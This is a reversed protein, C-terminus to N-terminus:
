RENGGIIVKSLTIMHAAVYRKGEAFDTNRRGDEGPMFSIDYYQCLDEIIYKVATKQQGENANGALLARMAGVIVEDYVPSEYPPNKRILDKLSRM